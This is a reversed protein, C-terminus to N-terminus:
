VVLIKFARSRDMSITAPKIVFIRARSNFDCSKFVIFLTSPKLPKLEAPKKLARSFTGRNIGCLIHSTKVHRFNKAEIALAYQKGSMQANLTWAIILGEITNNVIKLWM